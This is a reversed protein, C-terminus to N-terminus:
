NRCGAITGNVVPVGGSRVFYTTCENVVKRGVRIVKALMGHRVGPLKLLSYGSLVLLTDLVFAM